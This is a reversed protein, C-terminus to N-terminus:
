NIITINSLALQPERCMFYALQIQPQSTSQSPHTVIHNKKISNVICNKAHSAITLVFQRVIVTINTQRDTQGDTTQTHHNTANIDRCLGNTVSSTM